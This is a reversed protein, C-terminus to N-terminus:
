DENISTTTAETPAATKVEVPQNLGRSVLLKVEVRRNQQRGELTTNDAVAQLEGFGYSTGIRRLPINHNEVLYEIVANARKESLVKNKKLDGDSSAFGTVEIVYGKLTTSAQAVEDLAQKAEPSLVWSSVKFNVTATSQVSYEDLSSIRSNTANVGAVAADATDQAAKAGGRAANSVAVLEDLQGSLRQANQEAQSLREEAPSVRSDISQATRMDDKDFRVKTANLSGDSGGVGEVEVYLGRVIANAPTTKSGGFFGGKSKVSAGGIAVPTDIGLDDKVVIKDADKSVVVGKLKMKQGAAVNRMQATDTGGTGNDQAFVPVSLALAALATLVFVNLKRLNIKKM